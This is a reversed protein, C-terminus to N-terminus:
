HRLLLGIVTSKQGSTWCISPLFDFLDGNKEFLYWCCHMQCVKFVMNKDYDKVIRLSTKM